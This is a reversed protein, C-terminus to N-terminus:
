TITPTRRQMFFGVSGYFNDELGALTHTIDHCRGLKSTWEGSPLQRAAHTPVNRSNVYVAIKETGEVLNGDSCNVFGVTRYAQKFASVTEVRAVGPPWYAQNQSDPWWWATDVNAGWAICNYNLTEPSTITYGEITLRPHM